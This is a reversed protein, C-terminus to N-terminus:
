DLSFSVCVVWRSIGKQISGGRDHDWVQRGFFRDVGAGTAVPWLIKQPGGYTFSVLTLGLTFVDWQKKLLHEDMTRNAPYFEDPFPPGEAFGLDIIKASPVDEGPVLGVLVNPPILDQHIIGAAHLTRLGCLMQFAIRAVPCQIDGRSCKRRTMTRTADHVTSRFTNDEVEETSRHRSRNGSVELSASFLDVGVARGGVSSSFSPSLGVAVFQEFTAKHVQRVVM